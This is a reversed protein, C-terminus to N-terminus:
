GWLAGRQHRRRRRRRSASSRLAGCTGNIAADRDAPERIRFIRNRARSSRSAVAVRIGIITFFSIVLPISLIEVSPRAFAVLGDRVPPVVASAVLALAVGVYTSDAFSPQPACGAASGLTARSAHGRRSVTVGGPISAVRHRPRGADQSELALRTLRGHTTVFVGVAASVTVATAGAALAALPWAGPAPRGGLVDYLGLFWLSPIARLWGAELDVTLMKGLRPVFFVMQLLAVVFLLQLILSLRDAARRGGLNLALGQLSVLSAFVFLGAFTTTTLHALSAQIPNAAGGYTWSVPGYVLTPVLNMGGLFIAALAALALLRAAILARGTVPLVGLIRADRRDPFVGDWIVLGVLGIATMTLTIFILPDTLLAHELMRPDRSMQNYKSALRVPLLLGPTAFLALSWIVLQVQPLGPPMLESEFFRGFFTRALLITRSTRLM